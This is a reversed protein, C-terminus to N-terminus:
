LRDWAISYCHSLYFNFIQLHCMCLGYVMHLDSNRVELFDAAHCMITHGAYLQLLQTLVAAVKVDSTSTIFERFTILVYVECHGQVLM